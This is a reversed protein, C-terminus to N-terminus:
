FSHSDPSVTKEAEFFDSFVTSAGADTVIIPEFVISLLGVFLTVCSNDFTTPSVKSLCPALLYLIVNLSLAPTKLV